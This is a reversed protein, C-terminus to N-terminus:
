GGDQSEVEFKESVVNLDKECFAKFNEASIPLRSLLMAKVEPSLPYGAEEGIKMELRTVDKEERFFRNEIVFHLGTNVSISGEIYCIENDQIESGIPTVEVTDDDFYCRHTVGVRDIPGDGDGGKLGPLWQVRNNLDILQEYAQMIPLNIRVGVTDEGVMFSPQERPPLEPVSQKINELLAYHFELKGIAPYEDAASQWALNTSSLDPNPLANLYSQSALIYEDSPVSNKMLRHAIIMDLGSAKTFQLVKIEQIAGYHVIFKLTLDSATQCAGCQCISDREIVKLQTHFAQFMHICQEMMTELQIPEGKNYFLLADGEIESLTCNSDNAEVLVELLENLIHSSHALETTSVFQTYGSIDPIFITANESM